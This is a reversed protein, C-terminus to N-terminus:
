KFLEVVKMIAFDMHKPNSFPHDGNEVEELEIVNNESFTRSEEIPVMEDKTGQIMLINDAFELFDMKFLDNEKLGNLFENDIKIKRDFGKIIEKGKSLKERDEEDFGKNYMSDYLNIAPCRLGIKTFPNGNRHIYLLTMYAGLSSSYNFVREAHLEEKAYKVVLGLYTLCDDVLLKNRADNGHSPWDFCIVGYGKYKSILREAFKQCAKNDKNGGFGYTAIAVNTLARPDKDYYLKCRVSFGEENIDFYKEM